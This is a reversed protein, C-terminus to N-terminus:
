RPMLPRTVFGNSAVSHFSKPVAGINYVMVTQSGPSSGGAVTTFLLSGPQVAPAVDSGAPLVQLFITLVQPTNAAGPADVRVLGYYNGPPLGVPNISTMIPASSQPGLGTSGSNPTAQLWNPGGALTSTTVTWLIPAAGINLVAFTQPPIVGGGAVATFTLGRQSLLIAQNSTSITMVVKVATSNIAITGSYTGPQLGTPDATIMLPVPASPTATGSTPSVSLWTGGNTTTAIAIFGLKSGGSNSVTLKQTQSGGGRAFSFSLSQSDLSLAPPVASSVVFTVTITQSAPNADPASILLDTRYTGPLLQGPDATVELLCPTAGSQPSVTLWSSSGPTSVSILLEPVSSLVTVFQPLAPAGFSQGTFSLSNKSVQISPKTALVKRIRSNASDSIYLAGASDVALGGPFAALSARTAPAGDGSLGDVGNGAVTTITSGAVKRVLSLECFYLSGDSSIALADSGTLSGDDALTSLVGDPTVRYIRGHLDAIYFYGAADVTIAAPFFGTKTAQVGEGLYTETGNGAVTVIRGDASVKRVRYNLVDAIYVNGSVDAALGQPLNLQAQIAPGGDGSFGYGLALNGAFLHILGDRTVKYVCFHDAVYLNGDGDVALGNLTGLPANLALTGDVPHGFVGNGVVTEIVGDSRLRRVRNNLVDAIYLDGAPGLVLQSPLSL